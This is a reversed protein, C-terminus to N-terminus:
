FGSVDLELKGNLQLRIGEHYEGGNFLGNETYIPLYIGLGGTKFLLGTGYAYNVGDTGAETYIDLNKHLNYDLSLSALFNDSTFDTYHKLGGERMFIQKSLTGETENRAYSKESFSYDMSGNWASMQLNYISDQSKVYGFYGRINLRNKENLHYNYNMILNAKTFEGGKELQLNLSYPNLTRANSFTYNGKIFELEGKKNDKELYIYSAKIYHDKKDRLSSKNLTLDISPSFRKYAHDSDYNFREADLSLKAKSFIFSHSYKTFSLNGKGVLDKTGFAYMPSLKYSVGGQPIFKNYISLGAAFQNYKNWSLNPHYFIQTKEPNYVSGILQLKIPECQKLFGKTKYINNNRNTEPMVGNYDIRIHDYGGNIYPITKTGEFGDVWLEESVVGDTVGCIVVPGPITGNNKLTIHLDKPGQNIKSISYDLQNTTTIMNNFFWSLDKGTKNEFIVKLDEPQPHKYKWKEFYEKMCDDFIDQGLYASLYDFVIYTKMYVIGGYNMMTYEASPFDIPQDKATWAGILYMLEGM